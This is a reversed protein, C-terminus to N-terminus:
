EPHRCSGINQLGINVPGEAIREETARFLGSGPMTVVIGPGSYGGCM